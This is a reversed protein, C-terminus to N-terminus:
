AGRLHQPQELFPLDDELNPTYASNEVPTKVAKPRVTNIRGFALGLLGDGVGRAFQSSITKALEISQGEIILKGLTM